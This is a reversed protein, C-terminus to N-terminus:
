FIVHYMEWINILFALISFFIVWMPKQMFALNADQGWATNSFLRIIDVPIATIWANWIVRSLNCHWARKGPHPNIRADFNNLSPLYLTTLKMVRIWGAVEYPGMGTFGHTFIEVQVWV